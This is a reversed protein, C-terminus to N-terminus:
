LRARAEAMPHAGNSAPAALFRPRPETPTESAEPMLPDPIWLVPGEAANRVHVLGEGALLSITELTSRHGMTGEDVLLRVMPGPGVLVGGFAEALTTWVRRARDRQEVTFCRWAERAWPPWDERM